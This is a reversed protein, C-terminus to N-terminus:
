LAYLKLLMDGVAKWANRGKNWYTFQAARLKRRLVPNGPKRPARRIYSRVHGWFRDIIQTGSKVRLKGGEPLKLDYVKTFHPKIWRVQGKLMVRKKKHVVNAHLLGPMRLKYARAGDTHLVVKRDRLLPAGIKGWEIKRIPGPGPSNPKTAPPQLRFLRLSTPRGREVIGCWQEWKLNYAPDDADDVLAKGLDVEDAEVDKWMSGSPDGYTILKEQHEVYRARAIELNTFIREVPKHDVDLILHTATSSVGAVASFLACVQTNFDTYSNGAGGFFIPHFDHPQVFKQCKKRPCRYLWAHRSSHKTLKGLKGEGCHPCLKGSWDQLINEKTLTRILTEERMRMFQPISHGWRQRDTRNKTTPEGHRVYPVPAFKKMTKSNHNTVPKKYLNRVKGRKPLPWCRGASKKQNIKKPM